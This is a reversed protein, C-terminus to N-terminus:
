SHCFFCPREDSEDDYIDQLMDILPRNPQRKQKTRLQEIMAEV